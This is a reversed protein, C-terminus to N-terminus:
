EAAIDRFAAAVQEYVKRKFPVVLEPLRALHEWRWSSFEPKHKGGGPALVNVESDNGTFRLAFWKQRQGRYRGKWSVGILEPPLDYAIWGPATRILEVNSISTEEFLERYAAQEPDEGADLGGQPMQWWHGTGEGEAAVDSRHGVWVRGDRNFVAIGVNLRYPLDDASKSHKSM